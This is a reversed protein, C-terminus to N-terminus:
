RHDAATITACFFDGDDTATPWGVRVETPVTLGGFTGEALIRARFDHSGVARGPPRGWRKMTVAQLAGDDAVTLTVDSTFADIRHRLVVTSDTDPLWQAGTLATPVFISEAALRGAASRAIDASDDHVLPIAGMVRWSMEGYGPSRYRDYGRVPLGAIRTDAAWIFGASPVIVQRADFTRWSGIRIRGHMTLLVARSPPTGPAIAHRLWRRAPDPLGDSSFPGAVDATPASLRDWHDRIRAAAQPVEWGSM